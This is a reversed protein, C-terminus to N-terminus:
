GGFDACWYYNGDNGLSRGFGAGRVFPNLINARHGTSNMWLTMVRNLDDTPTEAANEEYYNGKFGAAEIRQKMTLITLGEHEAEEHLAMVEAYNMACKVLNPNLRLPALGLKSRETNHLIL